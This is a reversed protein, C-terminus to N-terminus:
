HLIIKNTAQLKNSTLVIFYVGSPLQPSLSLYTAGDTLIGDNVIQGQMNILQWQLEMNAPLNFLRVESGAMVPSEVTIGSLINRSEETSVLSCPEYEFVRRIITDTPTNADIIDLYNLSNNSNWGYQILDSDASANCEHLDWKTRRGLMDYELLVAECM